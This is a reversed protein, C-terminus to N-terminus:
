FGSESSSWLYAAFVAIMSGAFGAVIPLIVTQLIQPLSALLQLIEPGVIALLVYIGSGLFFGMLGILSFSTARGM